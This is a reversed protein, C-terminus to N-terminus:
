RRAFSQVSELARQAARLDDQLRMAETYREDSLASWYQERLTKVARQRDIIRRDYDSLEVTSFQADHATKLPQAM